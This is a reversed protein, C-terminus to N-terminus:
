QKKVPRYIGDSKFYNFKKLLRYLEEVPLGMVNYYSGSLSEIYLAAKGQIAYGGAKGNWEDIELYQKIEGDTMKTFCVETVSCSSRRIGRTIDKVTIGSFVYHRNGSLMRLFKHAQDIDVPKGLVKRNFYVVTDIGIVLGNSFYGAATNVKENSISIVSSKVRRVSKIKEDVDVGFVIYPIHLRNLIERRRPSRSALVITDM